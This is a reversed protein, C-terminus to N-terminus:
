VILITYPNYKLFRPHTAWLAIYDGEELILTCGFDGVPLHIGERWVVRWLSPDATDSGPNGTPSPPCAGVKSGSVKQHFHMQFCIFQTGHPPPPPPPTHWAHGRSGGITLLSSTAQFQFQWIEFESLLKGRNRFQIKRFQIFNM